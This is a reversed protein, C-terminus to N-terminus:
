SGGDGPSIALDGDAEHTRQKYFYLFPFPNTCRRQLMHVSVKGQEGGKGREELDDNM